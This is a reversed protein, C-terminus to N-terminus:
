PSAASTSPLAAVRGSRDDQVQMERQGLIAEQGLVLGLQRGLGLRAMLGDFCEAAALPQQNEIAQAPSAL